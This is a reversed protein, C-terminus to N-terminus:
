WGGSLLTDLAALDCCVPFIAMGTAKYLAYVAQADAPNAMAVTLRNHDRGVPVCHLELALAHPITHKLRAPLRTPLQLFPIGSAQAKSRQAEEDTPADDFAAEESEEAARVSRLHTSVAPRFTLRRTCLSAYYLLSDISEAPQPYSGLGLLVETERQLPPIVTEAQLLDISHYVREGILHAGEQDVSPFLFAAGTGGHLIVQDDLRLSRRVNTLVQALFSAPAHYRQRKHPMGSTPLIHMHELQSIHLLLISLPETRPFLTGLIARLSCALESTAPVVPAAQERDRREGGETSHLAAPSRQIYQGHLTSVPLCDCHEDAPTPISSSNAERVEHKMVSCRQGM